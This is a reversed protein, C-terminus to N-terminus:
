MEEREHNSGRCTRWGNIEGTVTIKGNHLVNRGGFLLYCLLDNESTSMVVERVSAHTYKPTKDSFMLM